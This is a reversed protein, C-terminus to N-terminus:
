FMQILVPLKQYIQFKTKSMKHKCMFFLLSHFAVSGTLQLCPAVEWPSVKIRIQLGFLLFSIFCSLMLSRIAFGPNQGQQQWQNATQDLVDGHEQIQAEENKFFHCSSIDLTKGPMVIQICHMREGPLVSIQISRCLCM